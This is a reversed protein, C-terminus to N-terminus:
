EFSKNVTIRGHFDRQNNTERVLKADYVVERNNWDEPTFNWVLEQGNIVLGDGVTYIKVAAYDYNPGVLIKGNVSWSDGESLNFTLSCVQGEHTTFHLEKADDLNITTSM